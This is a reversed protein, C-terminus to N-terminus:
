SGTGVSVVLAGGVTDAIYALTGGSQQCPYLATQYPAVVYVGSAMGGTPVSVSAGFRFYVPNSSDNYVLISEGGAPVAIVQSSTTSTLAATAIPSFIPDSM